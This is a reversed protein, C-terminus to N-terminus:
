GTEFRTSPMTCGVNPNTSHSLDYCVSVTTGATTHLTAQNPTIGNVGEVIDVEGEDPWNAGVEWVAPWTRLLTHIAFM